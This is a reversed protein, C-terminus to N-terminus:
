EEHLRFGYSLQMPAIPGMHITIKIWQLKPIRRCLVASNVTSSFHARLLVPARQRRAAAVTPIAHDGLYDPNCSM